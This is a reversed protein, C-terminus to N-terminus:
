KSEVEDDNKNQIFGKPSNKTEITKALFRPYSVHSSDHLPFPFRTEQLPAESLAGGFKRRSSAKTSKSQGVKRRGVGAM